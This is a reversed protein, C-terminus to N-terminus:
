DYNSERLINRNQLNEHNERTEKAENKKTQISGTQEICKLPIIKHCHNQWYTNEIRNRIIRFKFSCLTTITHSFFITYLTQLSWEYLKSVAFLIKNIRLGNFAYVSLTCAILTFGTKIFQKWQQEVYDRSCTEYVRSM